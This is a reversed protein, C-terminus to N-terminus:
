GLQEILRVVEDPKYVQTRSYNLQYKSRNKM